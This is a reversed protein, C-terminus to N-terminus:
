APRLEETGSTAASSRDTTEKPAEVVQEDIEFLSNIPGGGDCIREEIVSAFLAAGNM